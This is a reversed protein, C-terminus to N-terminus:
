KKEKNPIIYVLLPTLVVIIANIKDETLGIHFNFFNNLIYILAMIGAVIAKNFETGM